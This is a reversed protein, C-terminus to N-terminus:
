LSAAVAVHYFGVAFNHSERKVSQLRIALGVLYKLNGPHALLVILM